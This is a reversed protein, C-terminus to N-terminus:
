RDSVEWMAESTYKRQRIVHSFGEPVRIPHHEPNVEQTASSVELFLRGQMDEVVRGQLLCHSHGTAEGQAIITSARGILGKPLEPIATFLLDSQRYMKATM